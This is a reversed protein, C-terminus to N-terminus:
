GPNPPDVPPLLDRVTPHGDRLADSAGRLHVGTSNVEPDGAWGDRPSTQPAFLKLDLIFSRFGHPENSIVKNSSSSLVSVARREHLGTAVSRTRIATKPREVDEKKESYTQTVGETGDRQM